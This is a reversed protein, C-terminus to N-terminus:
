RIRKFGTPPLKFLHAAGAASLLFIFPLVPMLFRGDWDETTFFVMLAQLGIVCSIFALAARDLRRAWGALYYLPYLLVVTYITHTWSYYPKVHSFFYFVKLFGAKLFYGPNHFVFKGIKILSNGAAEFDPAIDPKILLNNYGFIIDGRQYVELIQFTTLLYTNIIILMVGFFILASILSLKRYPKHQQWIQIFVYVFAAVAIIFGNPRLVSIFFLFILYLFYHWWFRLHLLFYLALIAASIFLSETLIYMNWQSVEVYLVLSTVSILAAVESHLLKQAIRYQAVVAMGSIIIQCFIVLKLSGGISFIAALFLSYGAYRLNHDTPLSYTALINEAGQLYRHSDHMVKVGLVQFLAAQVVLWILVLALEYMRLARM